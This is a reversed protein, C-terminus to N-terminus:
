VLAKPLNPGRAQTYKSVETPEWNASSLPELLVTESLSGDAGGSARGDTRRMSHRRIILDM